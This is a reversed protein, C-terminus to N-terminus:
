CTQALATALWRARLIPPLLGLVQGAVLVAVSALHTPPDLAASVALAPVAAIVTAALWALYRALGGRGLAAAGSRLARLPRDRHRVLATRAYDHAAGWVALVLLGPTLGAFALLDRSREDTLNSTVVAVASPVLGLLGLGVLAIPSLLLGVAVTAFYGRAGAALATSVTTPRSLAEVTARELLPGLLMAALLVIAAGRLSVAMAPASDTLAEMLWLAGPAYLAREGDPHARLAQMLPAHLSETLIVALSTRVVHAAFLTAAAARVRKWPSLRAVTVHEGLAGFSAASGLDAL